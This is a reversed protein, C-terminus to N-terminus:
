IDLQGIGLQLQLQLGVGFREKAEGERTKEPRAARGEGPDCSRAALTEFNGRVPPQVAIGCSCRCQLRTEQFPQFSRNQRVYSKERNEGWFWLGKKKKTERDIAKPIQTTKQVRCVEVGEDEPLFGLACPKDGPYSAPCFCRVRASRESRQPSSPLLDLRSTAPALRSVSGGIISM